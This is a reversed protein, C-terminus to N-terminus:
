WLLDKVKKDLKDARYESLCNVFIRMIKYSLSIGFNKFVIKDKFNM